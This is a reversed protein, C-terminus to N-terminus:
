AKIVPSLSQSSLGAVSIWNCKHGEMLSFLEAEMQPTKQARVAQLSKINDTFNPQINQREGSFVPWASTTRTTYWGSCM